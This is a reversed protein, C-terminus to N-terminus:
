GVAYVPFAHRLVGRPSGPEPERRDDVALPHPDQTSPRVVRRPVPAVDPVRAVPPLPRLEPRVHDPLFAVLMRSVDEVVLDPNRTAMRLRQAALDPRELNRLSPERISGEAIVGLRYFPRSRSSAVTRTIISFGLRLIRGM